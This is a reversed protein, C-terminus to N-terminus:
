ANRLKLATLLAAADSYFARASELVGSAKDPDYTHSTENRAELYEFWRGAEDVLGHKAATRFLERRSLGSVHAGGLDLALRRQMFKWCLEFALEFNQIVGARIVEKTKADIGADSAVAQTVELAAKLSAIVKELSGLDLQM